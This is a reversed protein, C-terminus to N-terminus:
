QFMRKIGDWIKVFVQSIRYWVGQNVAAPEIDVANDKVSDENIERTKLIIQISAPSGNNESTFSIMEEEADLNLFNTEEEVKDIESKVTDKMKENADKVRTTASDAVAREMIEILGDLTKETGNEVDTRNAKLTNQLITLTNVLNGTASALSEATVKTDDLMRDFDAQDRKKIANLTGIGAMANELDATVRDLENLVGASSTLTGDVSGNDLVEQLEYIVGQVQEVLQTYNDLLEYLEDVNGGAAANIADQLEQRMSDAQAKGIYPELSKILARTQQKMAGLAQAMQAQTMSGGTVMGLAESMEDLKEQVKDVQAQLKDVKEQTVSGTNQLDGQLDRLDNKLGNLKGGLDAFNDESERAVDVLNDMEDSIDQMTHQVNDIDPSLENLATSLGALEEIGQDTSATMTDKSADFRAKAEQLQQLGAKTTAVGNTLGDLKDLVDNMSDILEEASDSFTDKAERIDKIERMQDLTGPIMMMIIGPTEFDSTGIELHFTATEGPVAAFLIVKYTGLSQTQSGPAAITNVDEMNVATGVQLLMNNRYYEKAKQNPTCVVDIAVLGSAGALKEAEAPVGNLKYSIDFDWPLILSENDMQCEYYFREKSDEPLNWTVGDETRVPEVHSSMNTVDTYVGYDTFSRIGNLSCGKVISTQTRAGYYDLNVYVAEDTDVSPSGAFVPLPTGGIVAAAALVVAMGRGLGNKKAGVWSTKKEMMNASNWMTQMTQM